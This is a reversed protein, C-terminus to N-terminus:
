RAKQGKQGVIAGNQRWTAAERIATAWLAAKYAARQHNGDARGLLFRAM